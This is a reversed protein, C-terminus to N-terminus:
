PRSKQCKAIPHPKRERSIILSGTPPQEMWLSHSLSAVSSPFFLGIEQSTWESARFNKSLLATLISATSLEEQIRKKWEESVQLDEHAMFSDIGYMSLHENLQGASVKDLTSYSIFAKM